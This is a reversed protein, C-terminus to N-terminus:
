FNKLLPDILNNAKFAKERDICTGCKRCPKETGEYCSWTLYYPVKLKIGEHIIDAKNMNIFPAIIHIKKNTGEYIAENMAKNFKISCDPYAANNADDKHIGYYIVEAGINFGISAAISLMLGNRFPVYTSILQNEKKQNEYSQHPISVLSNNLLSCTLNNKYILSLDIEQLEINYYNAISHAAEIEKVHKQGYYVTLALTQESSFKQLSLALSTTSDIGGSLLVINKKSM